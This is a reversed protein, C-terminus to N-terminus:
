GARLLIVGDRSPLTVRVAPRGSNVEPDQRGRLHRWGPGVDVTAPLLSPNVLAMGREFRRRYVPGQWAELAPPDVPRGLDADFEDFWPATSFQRELTSYAYYGDDLLCSALGFRMLRWDDARGVVGFGVLRPAITHQMTKRYRAMVKDWGGWTGLSWSKGYLSEMFAGNLQGSYEPSSIDDSNAMIWAEPQLQRIRKWGRVHGLRFARAIRPDTNADDRGDGDWDARQVLPQSTSNDLYWIDFEPVRQHFLRHDREVVWEPYRRGEEDPPAWETINADYTQYPEAPRLREGRSNHLWWRAEDLKRVKDAMQLQGDVLTSYQAIRIRPNHAKIARVADGIPDAIGRGQRWGAFFDLVLVHYRSLEAQYAPEHYRKEGINMGMLRPFGPAFARASAGQVSPLQLTGAAAAAAQLLVRRKMGASM